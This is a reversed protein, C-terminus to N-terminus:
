MTLTKDYGFAHSPIRILENTLMQTVANRYIFVRGYRVAEALPTVVANRKFAQQHLM